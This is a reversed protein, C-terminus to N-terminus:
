LNFYQTHFFSLEAMQLHAALTKRIDIAIIFWKEREREYMFRPVSVATKQDDNEYVKRCNPAEHKKKDNKYISLSAVSVASSEENDYVAQASANFGSEKGNTSRYIVRSTGEVSSKKDLVSKCDYHPTADEAGEAVEKEDERRIFHSTAALAEEKLMTSNQGTECVDKGYVINVLEHVTLPNHVLKSKPALRSKLKPGAADKSSVFQDEPGDNGSAAVCSTTGMASETNECVDKGYMINVLEHVTLQNHDLKSNPPLGSQLKPGGADFQDDPGDNGSAAVCSTIGIASDPNEYVNEPMNLEENPGAAGSDNNSSNVMDDTNPLNITWVLLSHCTQPAYKQIASRIVRQCQIHFMLLPRFLHYPTVTLHPELCQFIRILLQYFLRTPKPMSWCQPRRRTPM